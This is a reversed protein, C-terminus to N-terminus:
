DSKWHSMVRCVSLAFHDSDADSLLFCCFMESAVSDARMKSAEFRANLHRAYFEKTIHKEKKTKKTIKANKLLSKKRGAVVLTERARTRKREGRM